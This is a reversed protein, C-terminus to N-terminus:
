IRQGFIVPLLEKQRAYEVATNACTVVTTQIALHKLGSSDDGVLEVIQPYLVKDAVALAAATWLFNDVTNGAGKEVELLFHTM